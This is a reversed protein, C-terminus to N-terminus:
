ISYITEGQGWMKKLLYQQVFSHTYSSQGAIIRFHNELIGSLLFNVDKPCSFCYLIQFSNSKVVGSRAGNKHPLIV